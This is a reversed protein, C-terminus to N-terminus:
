YSKESAGNAMSGSSANCLPSRMGFGVASKSSGPMVRMGVVQGGDDSSRSRNNPASGSCRRRWGGAGGRLWRRRCDAPIPAPRDPAAPRSPELHRRRGDHPDLRTRDSPAAMQRRAAAPAGRAARGGSATRRVVGSIGFFRGRVVRGTFGFRRERELGVRRGCGLAARTARGGFGHGRQHLRRREARADAGARDIERQERRDVRDDHDERQPDRPQLGRSSSRSTSGGIGNM